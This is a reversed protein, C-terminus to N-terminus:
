DETKNLEFKKDIESIIDSIDVESDEPLHRDFNYFDRSERDFVNVIVDGYDVLIWANGARGEVRLPDRGRDGLLESVYDALAAVQTSSRGTCNVYYDTVSTKGEVNFLRVNLAKKELLVSCAARALADAGCGKLDQTKINEM